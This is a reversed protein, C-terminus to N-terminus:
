TRAFSVAEFFNMKTNKVLLYAREHNTRCYHFSEAGWIAAAEKARYRWERMVLICLSSNFAEHKM